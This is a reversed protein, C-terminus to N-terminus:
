AAVGLHEEVSAALEAYTEYLGAETAVLAGAEDVFLTVPLGPLRLPAELAGDVDAISPYTVGVRGALELALDPRLDAFDVGLVTIDTQEHLQQLVPMEKRCPECNQAWLNVVAPGQVAALDISGSGGLCPLRVAPLGEDASAGGTPVRSCDAVGARERQAQLAPTQVDVDVPVLAPAASDDDDSLSVLVLALAVAPVALWVLALLWGPLRQLASM